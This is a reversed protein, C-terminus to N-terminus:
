AAPTRSPGVLEAGRRFGAPGRPHAAVARAFLEPEDSARARRAHFPSTPSEPDIPTEVRDDDFHDVVALTAGGIM